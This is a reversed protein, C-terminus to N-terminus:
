KKLLDLAAATMTLVGTRLSPEVDPYYQNSHLSPPPVDLQAFRDLRSQGVTGLWYMVIPVGARGFQSFDEGGMSPEEEVVNDDGIATKFVTRLRAALDADNKLSPTGESM